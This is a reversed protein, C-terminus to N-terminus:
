SLNISRGGCVTIAQGTIFDSYSSSLFVVAKGIDEPLGLRGLPTSKELREITQELTEGKSQARIKMGEMFMQTKTNGPCIANVCIGYKGLDIAAAETFGIVGRKAACYPAIFPASIKGAVSSINIIRGSKQKAMVAGAAKSCLFVGTLDIGIIKNWLEESTELLDAPENFGANNVWIDIKSYLKLAKDVVKQIQGSDTVDLKFGESVGGKDKIKKSTAHALSEDIDTSVVSAGEEALVMAIGQGIGKGSGTVVAVKDKLLM